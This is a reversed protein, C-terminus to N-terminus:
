KSKEKVIYSKWNEIYKVDAKQILTNLWVKYAHDRKQDMLRKRIMKVALNSKKKVPTRKEVLTFLHFGYPTGLVDSVEGVKLEFIVREFEEPMQGVSFFGLDGGKKAEPAVSHQLALEGFDAGNLLEEQLSDAKERALVLIHLARVQLPFVFKNQNEKYYEQIEEDTVT